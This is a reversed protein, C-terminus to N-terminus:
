TRKVMQYLPSSPHNLSDDLVQMSLPISGFEQTIFAMAGNGSVNVNWFTVDYAPGAAPDGTFLLRGEIRSVLGADVAQLAVTAYTYDITLPLAETITVSGPLLYILATLADQIEYDTGAVLTTAGQKVAVASINRKTTAYLRGKKANLGGTLAEATVTAGTQSLTTTDGFFCLAANEPTHEDLAIQLTHTQQTTVTKLLASAARTSSYKDVAEGEAGLEASESNGLFRYGTYVGATTKRDFFFKGRGLLLNNGDADIRAM